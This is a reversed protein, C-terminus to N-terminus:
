RGGSMCVYIYIYIYISLVGRLFDVFSMRLMNQVLVVLVKFCESWYAFNKREQSLEVLLAALSDSLGRPELHFGSPSLATWGAM